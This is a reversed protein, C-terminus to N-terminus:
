RIKCIYCNISITAQSGIIHVIMAYCLYNSSYSSFGISLIFFLKSIGLMYDTFIPEDTKALSDYWFMKDANHEASEEYALEKELVPIYAKMPKPYAAGRTKHLYIEIIDNVFVKGEKIEVMDGEVAIVRKVIPQQSQEIDKTSNTYNRSIIIIDGAAPTYNFNTAILQDRNQLTNKMSNGDVEVKFIFFTFITIVIVWSVVVVDFLDLLGHVFPRKKRKKINNNKESSARTTNSMNEGCQNLYDM